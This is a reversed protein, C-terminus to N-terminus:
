DSLIVDLIYAEPDFDYFELAAKAMERAENNSVNGEAVFANFLRTELSTKM